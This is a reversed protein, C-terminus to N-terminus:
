LCEMRAAERHEMVSKPYECGGHVFNLSTHLVEIALESSDRPCKHGAGHQAAM